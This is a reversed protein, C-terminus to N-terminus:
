TWTCTSALWDFIEPSLKGTPRALVLITGSDSGLIRGLAVLDILRSSGRSGSQSSEASPGNQECQFLLRTREKQGNTQMMGDIGDIGPSQVRSGNGPM